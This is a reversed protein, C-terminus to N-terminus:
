RYRMRSSTSIPASRGLPCFSEESRTGDHALEIGVVVAIGVLHRLRNAEHVLRPVVECRRLRPRQQTQSTPSESVGLAQGREIDAATDSVDVPEEPTLEM